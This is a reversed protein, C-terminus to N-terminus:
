QRRSIYINNLLWLMNWVAYEKKFQMLSSDRIELAM